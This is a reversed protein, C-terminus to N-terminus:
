MGCRGVAVVGGDFREKAEAVIHHIGPLRGDDVIWAERHTVDSPSVEAAQGRLTGIRGLGADDEVLDAVLGPEGVPLAAMEVGGVSVGFAIEVAGSLLERELRDFVRQVREREDDAVLEVEEATVGDTQPVPDAPGEKGPVGM